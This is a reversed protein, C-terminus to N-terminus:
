ASFFALYVMLGLILVIVGSLIGTLCRAIAWAQNEHDDIFQQSKELFHPLQM